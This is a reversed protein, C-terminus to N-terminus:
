QIIFYTSILAITAPIMRNRMGIIAPWPIEPYRSRGEASVRNAAEGVVEILGVLSLNLMRNNEIDERTKRKALEMAERAADLMHRLRVSDDGRM